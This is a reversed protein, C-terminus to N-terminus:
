RRQFDMPTESTRRADRKMRDRATGTSPDQITGPAIVVVVDEGIIPGGGFEETFNGTLTMVTCTGGESGDITTALAQTDFKLTLDMWGDAMSDVCDMDCDEKGVYPMFPTGVDEYGSRAPAIGNLRISTPDITAVDLDAAGLIAAPTVGRSRVNIPNPCSGPKIDVPVEVPIRSIRTEGYLLGIAEFGCDVMNFYFRTLGDYTYVGAADLIDLSSLTDMTYGISYHSEFNGCFGYVETMLGPWDWDVQGGTVFFGDVAPDDNALVFYPPGYWPPYPDALGVTVAGLTISWTSQDIEYGRTPYTPSNMYNDSDVQFTMSVPDGVNVQDLPWARAFNWEVEGTIEVNVIEAQAPMAGISMAVFLFIAARM